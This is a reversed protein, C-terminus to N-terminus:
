GSSRRPRRRGIWRSCWRRRRGWTAQRTPRGSRSRSTGDAGPAYSTLWGGGNVNYEVLADTEVGSLTVAPNNTIADTASAGTDNALVVGPAVPPTVDPAFNAVSGLEAQTVLAGAQGGFGRPTVLVKAAAVADARSAAVITLSALRVTQGVPVTISYTWEINDGVVDVSTPQLGARGHIYHIIAPCGTGDGDDTGIWQDSTEVDTDGDFTAFVKTAGDSGMNGVIRVTTTIDSQTPNAFVDVTQAFDQSGTGPM